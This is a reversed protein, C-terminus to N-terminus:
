PQKEREQVHRLAAVQQEIAAYGNADLPMGGYWVRDTTEVVPALGDRLAPRERLRQLHERNTQHPNYNLTGREDLWLLAALTLMRTASRFDGKRAFTTAQAHADATDRAALEAPSTLTKEARTARRLGQLWPLLVALALAIAIGTLLWSALTGPTGGAADAVPQVVPEIQRFFWEFFNQIQQMIWSPEQSRESFPPSAIIQEREAQAAAPNPPVGVALADLLAGLRLAIFALDPENAAMELALWNNDVPVTAGDPMLIRRADILSRASSELDLRDGRLAAARAARLQQDYEGLTLTQGQAAVPSIGFGIASLRYSFAPCPTEIRKFTMLCAAQELTIPIIGFGIASLRYSFAPCPTEIRKFTM